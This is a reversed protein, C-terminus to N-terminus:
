WLGSTLALTGLLAAAGGFIAARVFFSLSGALINSFPGDMMSAIYGALGVGGVVMGLGTTATTVHSLLTSGLMAQPVTIPAPVPAPLSGHLGGHAILGLVALMGLGGASVLAMTLGEWPFAPRERRQAKSPHRRWVRGKWQWLQIAAPRRALAAQREATRTFRM